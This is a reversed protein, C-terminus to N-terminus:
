TPYLLVSILKYHSHVYLSGQQMSADLVTPEQPNHATPAARSADTKMWCWTDVLGTEMVEEETWKYFPINCEMKNRQLNFSRWRREILENLESGCLKYFYFTVCLDTRTFKHVTKLLYFQMWQVINKFKEYDDWTQKGAIYQKCKEVHFRFRTHRLLLELSTRHWM